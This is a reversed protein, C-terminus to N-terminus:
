DRHAPDEIDTMGTTDSLDPLASNLTITGTVSFNITDDGPNQNSQTIAYRLDGSLGSGTGTDGVGNVTLTSLLAREELPEVSLRRRSSPHRPRTPPSRGPVNAPTRHIGLM